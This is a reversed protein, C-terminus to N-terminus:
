ADGSGTNGSLLSWTVHSHMVTRQQTLLSGMEHASHESQALTQALESQASSEAELQREHRAGEREASLVATYAQRRRMAKLALLCGGPAPPGKSHALMRAPESWTSTGADLQREPRVGVREAWPHAYARWLLRQGPSRPEQRQQHQLSRSVAAAATPKAGSIAGALRRGSSEEVVPKPLLLTRWAVAANCRSGAAPFACAFTHM